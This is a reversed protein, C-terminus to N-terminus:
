SDTRSAIQGGLAKVYYVIESVTFPETVSTATETYRFRAASGNLRFTLSAEDHDESFTLTGLAKWTKGKNVSGEVTFALTEDEELPEEIQMSVKTWVKSLDPAGLDKDGTEIMLRPALQSDADISGSDDTYYYLAGDKNFFVQQNWAEDTVMSDWDPYFTSFGAWTNETLATNLGDWTLTELLTDVTFFGTDREERSWQGSKHSFRWVEQIDPGELPIGMMFSGTSYDTGCMIQQPVRCQRITRKVIANGIPEIGKTSLYYVNDQGVFFHGDFTPSVAYPNTLGIGGTEVARFEVPLLPLSSEQGIYLRDTFYAVLFDSMPLLRNIRGFGYPLNLYSAVDWTDFNGIGSDSWRIQARLNNDSEDIIHATWLRDKFYSVVYPKWLYTANLTTFSTGDTYALFRSGDAIYLRNNVSVPMAIVENTVARRIEYDTGAGYTGTPTLALTLSTDSAISLIPIIEASGNADLVFLDGENIQNAATDWATESGTVVAATAACTGTNYVWDLRTLSGPSVKYIAKQDMIITFAAGSVARVTWMGQIPPYSVLWTGYRQTAPRRRIGEPEVYGDRIDWFAGMPIAQPPVDRRIGGALPREVIQQVGQPIFLDSM